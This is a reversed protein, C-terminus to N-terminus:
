GKAPRPAKILIIKGSNHRDDYTLAGCKECRDGWATVRRILVGPIPAGRIPIFVEEVHIKGGCFVCAM